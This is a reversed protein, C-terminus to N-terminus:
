PLSRAMACNHDQVDEAHGGGELSFRDALLIFGPKGGFSEGVAALSWAAMNGKAGEVGEALLRIPDIDSLDDSDLRRAFYTQGALPVTMPRWTADLSPAYDKLAAAVPVAVCDVHVHLQDQSRAWASNIALAIAERPMSHGLRAEVFSRGRWGDHFVPPADPALMQPDEIGTIRRTPIALMQAIGVLDKLIAVGQEVGGALDVSECPAPGRGAEMNPLCKGSVIRWLANPDAHAPSTILAILAAAALFRAWVTPLRRFSGPVGAGSDQIAFRNWLTLCKKRFNIPQGGVERTRLLPAVPPADRLVSWLARGSDGEPDDKSVARKACRRLILSLADSKANAPNSAAKSRSSRGALGGAFTSKEIFAGSDM